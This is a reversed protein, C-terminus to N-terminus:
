FANDYAKRSFVTRFLIEIDLLISWNDIYFLDHEVRAKMKADTDTEGRLGHVQAWGTIGPKVNHRRAYLAIRDDFERDHAIAHPRPGVLSMQGALVNLLQPLEDLNWRRLVRGVRTVRQDNRTAQRVVDGDDMVTMTRFKVIQFERQNFGLRRQRFLVPGSSDLKIAIAIVLLVPTFMFLAFSGLALDLARKLMVEGATLPPRGLQLSAIGGAKAIHIDQFRDFIREPGLHITVPIRMFGDVLRDITETESWPVIILVDDLQMDRAQTAIRAIDDRSVPGGAPALLGTGAIHMGANWPQYRMAFATVDEERGVLMVRRAPIIGIKSGLTMMRRAAGRAIFIAPLGVVFSLTVAVRSFNETTKTAFAFAILIVFTASWLTLTTGFDRRVGVYHGIQYQGRVANLLVFTSALVAALAVQSQSTWWEGSSARAYLISILFSTGAIVMWDIAGTALKLAFRTWAYGGRNRRTIAGAALDLEKLTM